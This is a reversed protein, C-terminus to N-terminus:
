FIVIRELQIRLSNCNKVTERLEIEHAEIQVKFQYSFKKLNEFKDLFDDELKIFEGKPNQLNKELISLRKLINKFVSEEKPQPDPTKYPNSSTTTSASTIPSESTILPHNIKSCTDSSITSSNTTESDMLENKIEEMMSTSFENKVDEM